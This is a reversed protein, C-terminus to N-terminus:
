KGIPLLEGRQQLLAVNSPTLYWLNLKIFGAAILTPNNYYSQDLSISQGTGIGPINVPLFRYPNLGSVNGGGNNVFFNFNSLRFQFLFDSSGQRLTIYINAADSDNILARNLPDVGQTDISIGYILGISTNLKQAINIQQTAVMQTYSPYHLVPLRNKYLLNYMIIKKFDTFLFRAGPDQDM